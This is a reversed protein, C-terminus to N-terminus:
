PETTIATIYAELIEIHNYLRSTNIVLRKAEQTTLCHETNDSNHTWTVTLLEPRAPLELQPTVLITKESSSCAGSLCITLSLLLLIMIQRM